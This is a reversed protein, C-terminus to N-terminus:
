KRERYQLAGRINEIATLRLQTRTDYPEDTGRRCDAQLVKGNDLLRCNICSITYSGEPLDSASCNNVNGLKQKSETQSVADLNVNIDQAIAHSSFSFLIALCCLSALAFATM